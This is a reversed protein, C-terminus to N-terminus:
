KPEEAMSIDLRDRFFLAKELKSSGMSILSPKDCNVLTSMEEPTM